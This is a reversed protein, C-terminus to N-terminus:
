ARAPAATVGVERPGAPDVISVDIVDILNQFTAALTHARVSDAAVSVSFRRRGDVARSLSADIVDVGRRHLVAAVASLGSGTTTSAMTM